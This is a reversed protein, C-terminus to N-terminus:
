SADAEVPEVRGVIVDDTCLAVGDALGSISIAEFRDGARFFLAHVGPQIVTSYSAEGATVVVPSSDSSLYGIRVWLGGYAVPGNIPVTV